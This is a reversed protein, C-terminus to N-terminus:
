VDRGAGAVDSSTPDAAGLLRLVGRLVEADGTAGLAQVAAARLAPVEAMAGSRLAERIASRGRAAERIAEEDEKSRYVRDAVRSGRAWGGMVERGRASSVHAPTLDSWLRRLGYWGRGELHTVEALEELAHFWDLVTRKSVPKRYRGNRRVPVCAGVFRGQPMLAYDTITKAQYAAECERLYGVSMERDVVERVATDLDVFSGRKKGRGRVRLRGLGYEGCPGLDLDSRMSRRVQGARLSDGGFLINVRLRPDILDDFLADLLRGAEEQTYRPGETEEDLDHGTLKRWDNRFDRQWREPRICADKPIHDRTRLWEAGAFFVQVTRKAWTAGDTRAPRGGGKRHRNARPRRGNASPEGAIQAAAAFRKHVYRWIAQAADHSNLSAWTVDGLAATIDAVSRIVDHRQPDDVTPYQGTALDLYRAFGESLTVSGQEAAKEAREVETEGAEGPERGAVLDAHWLSALQKVEQERAPSIEGARRHGEPFRISRGTSKTKPAGKKGAKSDYWRGWVVVGKKGVVELMTLRPRAQVKYSWEGPAPPGSQVQDNEPASSPASM